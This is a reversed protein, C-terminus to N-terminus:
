GSLQCASLYCSTLQTISSPSLGVLQCTSLYCSSLAITPFLADARCCIYYSNAPIARPGYLSLPSPSRGVFSLHTSLVLTCGLDLLRYLLPRCGSWVCTGHYCSDFFKSQYRSTLEIISDLTDAWGFLIATIARPCILSLLSHSWLSLSLHQSLM